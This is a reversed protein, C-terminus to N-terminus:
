EVSVPIKVDGFTVYDAQSLDPPEDFCFYCETDRGAPSNEERM